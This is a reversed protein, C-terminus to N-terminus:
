FHTASETSPKSDYNDRRRQRLSFIFRATPVSHFHHSRWLRPNMEIQAAAPLARVSSNTVSTALSRKVM